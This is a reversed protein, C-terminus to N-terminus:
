FHGDSYMIISIFHKKPEMNVFHIVEFVVVLVLVSKFSRKLFFEHVIGYSLFNFRLSNETSKPTIPQSSSSDLKLPGRKTDFEIDKGKGGLLKLM